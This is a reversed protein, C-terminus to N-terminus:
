PDPWPKSFQAGGQRGSRKRGALGWETERKRIMIDKNLDRSTWPRGSIDELQHFPKFKLRLLLAFLILYGSVDLSVAQDERFATDFGPSKERNCWAVVTSFTLALSM